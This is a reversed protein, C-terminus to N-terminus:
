GFRPRQEQIAASLYQFFLQAESEPADVKYWVAARGCSHAFDSALTTKGAGARGVIITSSCTSISGEMLRLLRQRQLHPTWPPVSIKEVILQIARQLPSTPEMTFM